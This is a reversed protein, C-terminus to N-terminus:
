PKAHDIEHATGSETGADDQARAKRVAVELQHLTLDTPDDLWACATVYVREIRGARDALSRLAQTLTENSLNSLAHQRDIM